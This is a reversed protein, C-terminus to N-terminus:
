LACYQLWERPSECDCVHFSFFSLNSCIEESQMSQLSCSREWSILLRMQLTRTEMRKNTKVSSVMFLQSTHYLTGKEHIQVSFVFTLLCVFTPPPSAVTMVVIIFFTRVYSSSHVFVCVCVCICKHISLSLVVVECVVTLVFHPM